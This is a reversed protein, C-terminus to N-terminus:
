RRRRRDPQCRTPSMRFPRENQLPSEREDDDLERSNERQNSREADLARREVALEARENQAAEDHVV